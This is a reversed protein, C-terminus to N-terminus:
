LPHLNTDFIRHQEFLTDGLDDVWHKLQRCIGAIDVVPHSETSESVHDINVIITSSVNM